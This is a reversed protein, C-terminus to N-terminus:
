QLVFEERRTRRDLWGLFGYILPVLVLNFLTRPGIVETAARLWDLSHGTLQLALLLVLHYTLTAFVVGVILVLPNGGFPRAQRRGAGTSPDVGLVLSVALLAFM